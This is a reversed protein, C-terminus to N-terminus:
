DAPQGDKDAYIRFVAFDANHRPWMWNDTNGGFLGINQPPSAVLRVDTYNQRWLM